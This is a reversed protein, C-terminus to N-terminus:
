FCLAIRNLHIICKSNNCLRKCTQIKVGLYFPKSLLSRHYLRTRYRWSGTPNLLQLSWTVSRALDTLLSNNNSPETRPVTRIPPSRPLSVPFLNMTSLQRTSSMREFLYHSRHRWLPFLSREHQRMRPTRCIFVKEVYAGFNGFVGLIIM